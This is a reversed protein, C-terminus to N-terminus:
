HEQTRLHDARHATAPREHHRRHRLNQPFRPSPFDAPRRRRRHARNSRPCQDAAQPDGVTPPPLAGITPPACWCPCSLCDNAPANTWAPKATNVNRPRRSKLMPSPAPRSGIPGVLQTRSPGTRPHQAARGRPPYGFHAVPYLFRGKEPRRPHPDSWASNCRICPLELTSARQRPSQQRARDQGTQNFNLCPTPM